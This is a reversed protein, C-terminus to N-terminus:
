GLFAFVNAIERKSYTQSSMSRRGNRRALWAGPVRDPIPANKVGSFMRKPTASDELLSTVTAAWSRRRNFCFEKMRRILVTPEPIAAAPPEVARSQWRRTQGLFFATAEGTRRQIICARTIVSSGRRSALTPTLHNTGSTSESRARRSCVAV